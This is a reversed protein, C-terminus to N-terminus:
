LAWLWNRVKPDEIQNAKLWSRSQDTSVIIQVGGLVRGM